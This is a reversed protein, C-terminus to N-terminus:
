IGYSEALSSIYDTDYDSPSNNINYKPIDKKIMDPVHPHGGILISKRVKSLLRKVGVETKSNKLTQQYEPNNAIERIMLPAEEPDGM